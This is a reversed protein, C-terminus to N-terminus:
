NSTEKRVIERLKEVSWTGRIPRVGHKRVLRSFSNRSMHGLIALATSTNVCIPSLEPTFEIPLTRM